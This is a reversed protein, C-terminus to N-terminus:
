YHLALINNNVAEKDTVKYSTNQNKPNRIPLLEITAEFRFNDKM